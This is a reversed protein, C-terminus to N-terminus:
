LSSAFSLSSSFVIRNERFAAAATPPFCLRADFHVRVKRFSPLSDLPCPLLGASWAAPTRQACAKMFAFFPILRFVVQHLFFNKNPRRATTGKSLVNKAEFHLLNKRFM